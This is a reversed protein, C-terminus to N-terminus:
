MATVEETDGHYGQAAEESSEMPRGLIHLLTRKPLRKMLNLMRATTEGITSRHLLYDARPESQAIFTM